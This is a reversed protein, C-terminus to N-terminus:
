TGHFIIMIHTVVNIAVSSINLPEEFLSADTIMELPRFQFLSSYSTVGARVNALEQMGWFRYVTGRQNGHAMM